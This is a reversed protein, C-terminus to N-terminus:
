DLGIPEVKLIYASHLWEGGRSSNVQASGGDNRVWILRRVAETRAEKAIKGLPLRLSVVSCLDSGTVGGNFDRHYARMENKPFALTM